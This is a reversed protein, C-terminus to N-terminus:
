DVQKGKSDPDVWTGDKGLIEHPKFFRKYKMNTKSEIYEGTYLYRCGAKAGWEMVSLINFVGPSARALKPDFFCASTYLDREGSDVIGIMGIENGYRYVFEFSQKWGSYYGELETMYDQDRWGHRDMMYRRMLEAKEKSPKPTANVELLAESNKRLVRRQNRDAELRGLPFRIQVCDGCGPCVNRSITDGTRRFGRALMADFDEFRVISCAIAELGQRQHDPFYPCTSRCLDEYAELLARADEEKGLARSTMGMNYFVIPHNPKAKAAKSFADLASEFDRSSYFQVGLANLAEWEEM